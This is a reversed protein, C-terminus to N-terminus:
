TIDHGNAHQAFIEASVMTLNKNKNEVSFLSECKM